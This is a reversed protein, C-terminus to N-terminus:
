DEVNGWFDIEEEEETVEPIKTESKEEFSRSVPNDKVVARAEDIREDVVPSRSKERSRSRLFNDSLVIEGNQNGSYSEFQIEPPSSPKPSKEKPTYEWTLKRNADYEDTGPRGFTNPSQRTPTTSRIKQGVSFSDDTDSIITKTKTPLYGDTGIDGNTQTSEDITDQGFSSIKTSFLLATTNHQQDYYKVQALNIRGDKDETLSLYGLGCGRTWDRPSNASKQLLRTYYDVLENFNPETDPVIGSIIHKMCEFAEHFGIYSIAVSMLLGM